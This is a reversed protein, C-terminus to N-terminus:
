AADWGLGLYPRQPIDATTLRLQKRLLVRDPEACGAGRYERVLQRVEKRGLVSWLWKKATQDGRTLIAVVIVHRDNKEDWHVNELVYSKLLGRM